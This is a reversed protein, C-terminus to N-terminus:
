IDGFLNDLFNTAFLNRTVFYQVYIDHERNLSSLTFLIIVKVLLIKLEHFRLCQSSKLQEKIIAKMQHNEEYTKSTALGRDYSSKELFFGDM